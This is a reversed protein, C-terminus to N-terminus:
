QVIVWSEMSSAPLSCFCLISKTKRQMCRSINKLFSIERKCKQWAGAQESVQPDFGEFQCEKKKKKFVSGGSKNPIQHHHSRDKKRYHITCKCTSCPQKSISKHCWFTRWGTLISGRANGAGGYRRNKLKRGADDGWLHRQCMDSWCYCPQIKM